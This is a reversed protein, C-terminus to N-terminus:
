NGAATRGPKAELLEIFRPLETTPRECAYNRCVYATPRGEQEVQQAIFPVLRRIAEGEAGPPHLAVVAEPLFRERVARLMAATAPASPDGAIVIERTPEV